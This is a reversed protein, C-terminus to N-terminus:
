KNKKKEEQQESQSRRRSSSPLIGQEKGNSTNLINCEYTCVSLANLMTLESTAKRKQRKKLGLRVSCFNDCSHETAPHYACGHWALNTEICRKWFLNLVLALFLPSRFHGLNKQGASTKSNKSRFHDLGMWISTLTAWSSTTTPWWRSAM